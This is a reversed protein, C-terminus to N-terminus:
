HVGGLCCAPTQCFLPLLAASWGPWSALSILRRLMSYSPYRDTKVKNLLVVAYAPIDDPALLGEVMNMMTVSPNRDSAIKELLLDVVEGRVDVGEGNSAM